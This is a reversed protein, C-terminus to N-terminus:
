YIRGPNHMTPTFSTEPNCSGRSVGPRRGAGRGAGVRADNKAGAATGTCGTPGNGQGLVLVLVNLV